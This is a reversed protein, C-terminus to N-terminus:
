QAMTKKHQQPIISPLGIKSKHSQELIARIAPSQEAQTIELHQLKKPPRAYNFTHCIKQKITLPDTIPPHQLLRQLTLPIKKKTRKRSLETPRSPPPTRAQQQQELLTTITNFNSKFIKRGGSKLIHEIGLLIRQNFKLFKIEPTQADM